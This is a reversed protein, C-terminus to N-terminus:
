DLKGENDRLDLRVNCKSFEEVYGNKSIFEYMTGYGYKDRMIEIVEKNNEETDLEPNRQHNQQLEKSFNKSFEEKEKYLKNVIKRFQKEDESSFKNNRM